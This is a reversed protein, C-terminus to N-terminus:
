RPAKPLNPYTGYSYHYRKTQLAPEKNIRYVLPNEWNPKTQSAFLTGGLILVFILQYKRNFREFFM